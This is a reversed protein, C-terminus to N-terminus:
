CADAAAHLRTRRGVAQRHLHGAAAPDRTRRRRRRIRGRKRPRRGPRRPDGARVASEDPVDVRKSPADRLDWYVRHLGAADATRQHTRVTQGKADQITIQCTRDVASKLYYNIDAGYPPNEGVTPDDYPMAPATIARFRYAPRPAFLHADANLVEPTLAAAAHHRRPDLLRPRLDRDGSRQLAGPRDLWYVPAHPLNMQLPQWNSATTSRSTSRRERHRSVAARAQGSRRPRLARLEADSHPIGNTISKWTEGYDTTKYVFPDRNNM